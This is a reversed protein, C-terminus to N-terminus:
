QPQERSAPPTNGASSTGQDPKKKSTWAVQVAGAKPSVEVSANAQKQRKSGNSVVVVQLPPKRDGSNKTLELTQSNVTEESGIAILKPIFVCLITITSLVFLGISHVYYQFVRSGIGSVLVPVTVIMAIFVNYVALSIYLSENFASPINRGLWALAM